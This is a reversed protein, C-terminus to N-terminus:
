CFNKIWINHANTVIVFHILNSQLVYLLVKLIWPLPCCMIDIFNQKLWRSRGRASRARSSRWLGRRTTRSRTLLLKLFIDQYWPLRLKASVLLRRIKANQTAKFFTLILQKFCLKCYPERFCVHIKFISLRKM